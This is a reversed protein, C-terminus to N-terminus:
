CDERPTPIQPFNRFDIQFQAYGPSTPLFSENWQDTVAWLVYSRRGSPCPPLMMFGDEPWSTAEQAGEPTVGIIAPSSIAPPEEAPVVAHWLHGTWAGTTGTNIVMRRFVVTEPTWSVLFRDGTLQEDRQIRFTVGIGSRPTGRLLLQLTMTKAAYSGERANTLDLGSNFVDAEAIWFTYTEADSVQEQPVGGRALVFDRDFEDDIRVVSSISNDPATRIWVLTSDLAPQNGRNVGVAAVRGGVWQLEPNFNQTIKLFELPRHGLYPAPPLSETSCGSTGLGGLLGLLLVGAATRPWCHRLILM